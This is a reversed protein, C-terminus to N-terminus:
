KPRQYARTLTDMDIKKMDLIAGMVRDARGDATDQMMKGISAPVIQWSVGFKDKLWGCQEITGGVSLKNWLEDIERQTKCNAIFSIAPSFTFHPGGNLALFAQGDLQFAVTMVSGVPRGSAKSGAEGYHTVTKIKSNRFISTYFTAAEEANDDFWLCATIRQM